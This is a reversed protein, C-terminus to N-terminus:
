IPGDRIIFRPKLYRRIKAMLQRKAGYTLRYSVATSSPLEHNAAAPRPGRM